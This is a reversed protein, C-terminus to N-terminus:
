RLPLAANPQSESSPVLPVDPPFDKPSANAGQEHSSISHDSAASVYSHMAVAGALAPALVGAFCLALKHKTSVTKPVNAEHQCESSSCRYRRVPVIVSHLRDRIRRHIRVFDGGCKPCSRVRM